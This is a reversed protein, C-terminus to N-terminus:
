ADVLILPEFTGSNDLLGLTTERNTHQGLVARLEKSDSTNRYSVIQHKEGIRLRFAAADSMAVPKRDETM